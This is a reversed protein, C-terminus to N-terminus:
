YWYFWNKQTLTTNSAHTVSVDKTLKLLWSNLGSRLKFADILWTKCKDKSLLAFTCGPCRRGETSWMESGILYTPIFICASVLWYLDPQCPLVLASFMFVYSVKDNLIFSLMESRNDLNHTNLICRASIHTNVHRKPHSFVEKEEDVKQQRINM